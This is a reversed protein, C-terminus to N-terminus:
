DKLNASPETSVTQSETSASQSEEWTEFLTLDERISKFVWGLLAVDDFFGLTVIFDPIIDTPIVFYAMAAILAMLSKKPIAHYDGKAYAKLLRTSAGFTARLKALAASPKHLFKEIANQTLTELRRPSSAVREARQQLRQYLRGRRVREATEKNFMIVDGYIKSVQESSNVM